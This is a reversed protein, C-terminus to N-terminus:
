YSFDRHIAQKHAILISQTITQYECKDCLYKGGGHITQKHKM